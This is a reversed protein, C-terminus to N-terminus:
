VSTYVMIKSPGMNILLINFRIYIYISISISLKKLFSPDIVYLNTLFDIVYIESQRWDFWFKSYLIVLFMFM